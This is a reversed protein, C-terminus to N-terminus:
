KRVAAKYGMKEVAEIIKRPSTKAPMYKVTARREDYSVDAKVVGETRKLVATIGTACSECYMGSVSLTVTVPLAPSAPLSGALILLVFAVAIPRTM